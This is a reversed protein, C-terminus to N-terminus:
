PSLWRRAVDAAERPSRTVTQRVRDRLRDLAEDQASLVSEGPARLSEEAVVGADTVPAMGRAIRVVAALGCVGLIGLLYTPLQSGPGAAVPKQPPAAETGRVEAISLPGILISINEVRAGSATRLLDKREREYRRREEGDAPVGLASDPILAALSISEYDAESKMHEVKLRVQAAVRSDPPLMVLAKGEIETALAREMDRIDGGLQTESVRFFQGTKDLIKVGSPKLGPICGTLLAAIARARAATVTENPKPELVVAATSERGNAWWLMKPDAPEAIQVRATRVYELSQIMAALRGQVAVLWQRDSKDRTSFLDTEKLFKFFVDDGLAGSSHLQLMAEDAKEPAVSIYDSGVKFKIGLDRLKEAVQGRQDITQNKDVIRVWPDPGASTVGWVAVLALLLALFGTLVRYSVPFGAWAAQFSGASRRFWDM